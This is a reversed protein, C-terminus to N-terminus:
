NFLEATGKFARETCLTRRYPHGLVKTKLVYPALGGLKNLAQAAMRLLGESGTGNHWVSTVCLLHMSTPLAGWVFPRFVLLMWDRRCPM